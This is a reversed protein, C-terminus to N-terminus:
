ETTDDGEDVIQWGLQTANELYNGQIQAQYIIGTPCSCAECTIFNLENSNLVPINNEELESIADELSTYDPTICQREASAVQIWIPVGSMQENQLCNIFLLSLSLLLIHLKM